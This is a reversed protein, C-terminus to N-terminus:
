HLTCNLYWEQNSRLSIAILFRNSLTVWARTCVYVYVIWLMWRHSFVQQFKWTISCKSLSISNLITRKTRGLISKKTAHKLYFLIICHTVVIILGVLFKIVQLLIIFRSLSNWSNVVIIITVQILSRICLTYIEFGSSISERLYICLVWVNPYEFCLLLFPRLWCSTMVMVFRTWGHVHGIIWCSNTWATHNRIYSLWLLPCSLRSCRVIFCISTFSYSEVSCRGPEIIVLHEITLTQLKLHWSWTLVYIL